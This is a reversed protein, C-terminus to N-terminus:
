NRLAFPKGRLINNHIFKGAAKNDVFDIESAFMNVAVRTGCSRCWSEGKVSDHFVTDFEKCNPCQDTM